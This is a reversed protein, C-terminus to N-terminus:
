ETQGCVREYLGGKLVKRECEVREAAMLKGGDVADPAIFANRPFSCKGIIMTQAIAKM